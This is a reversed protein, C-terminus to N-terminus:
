PEVCTECPLKVHSQLHSIYEVIRNLEWDGAWKFNELYMDRAKQMTDHTIYGKQLCFNIGYPITMGGRKFGNIMRDVFYEYVMVVVVDQIEQKHNKNQEGYIISWPVVDQLSM